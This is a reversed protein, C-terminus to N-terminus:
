NDIEYYSVYLKNDILEWNYNKNMYKSNIVNDNFLSYEEDSLETFITTEENGTKNYKMRDKEIMEDIKESLKKFDNM